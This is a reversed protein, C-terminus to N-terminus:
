TTATTTRVRRRGIGSAGHNGRCFSNMPKRKNETIGIPSRGRGKPGRLEALIARLMKCFVWIQSLLDGGLEKKKGLAM